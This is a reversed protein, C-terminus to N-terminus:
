QHRGILQVKVLFSDSDIRTKSLVVFRHNLFSLRSDKDGTPPVMAVSAATSINPNRSSSSDILTVKDAKKTQNSRCEERRSKPMSRTKSEPYHFTTEILHKMKQSSKMLRELESESRQEVLSMLLTRASPRSCSPSRNPLRETRAELMLMAVETKRSGTRL